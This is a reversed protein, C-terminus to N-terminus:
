IQSRKNSQNPEKGNGNGTMTLREVSGFRRLQPPEYAKKELGNENRTHNM